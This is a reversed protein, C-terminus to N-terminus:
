VQRHEGSTVRFLNSVVRRYLFGGRDGPGGGVQRFVATRGWGEGGQGKPLTSVTMLGSPGQFDRKM